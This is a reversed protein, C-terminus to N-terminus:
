TEEMAEAYRARAAVVHDEDLDCGQCEIGLRAVAVAITGEGCCPYLVSKVGVSALWDAIFDAAELGIGNAWLTEGRYLVDTTRKGPRGPGFALLHSYGPRHLDTKGPPRRLLIKHWLLPVRNAAAVRGIITAKDQWRGEHMRDTQCFVTPGASADFCAKAAGSLWAVYSDPDLGVEASDPLGTVVAGQGAKARLWVHMEEVDFSM